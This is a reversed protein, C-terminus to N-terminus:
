PYTLLNNEPSIGYVALFLNWFIKGIKSPNWDIHLTIKDM